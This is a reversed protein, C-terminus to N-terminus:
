GLGFILLVVRLRGLLRPQVGDEVVGHGVAVAAEDVEVVRDVSIRARVRRHLEVRVAGEPVTQLCARMRSRHARQEPRQKHSRALGDRRLVPLQRRIRELQHLLPLAHHVDLPRPVNHLLDPPQRIQHLLFLRPQQHRRVIHPVKQRHIDRRGMQPPPHTLLHPDADHKSSLHSPTQTPSHPRSPPPAKKQIIGHVGHSSMQMYARSM